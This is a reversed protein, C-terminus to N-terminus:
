HDAPEGDPPTAAKTERESRHEPNKLKIRDMRRASKWEVITKVDELDFPGYALRRGAEEM